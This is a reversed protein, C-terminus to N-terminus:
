YVEARIEKIRLFEKDGTVIKSCKTLIASAIHICDLFSLECKNKKYYSARLEAAKISIERNVDVVKM